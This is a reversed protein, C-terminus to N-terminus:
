DTSHERLCAEIEALLVEPEVPRFIFRAAGRALGEARSKEDHVTSTILIVPIARLRSDNKIASVLDYGIGDGMFLDCLILDPHLDTLAALGARYGGATVVRFGYHELLTRLLDRNAELNDVVLITGHIARPPAVADDAALSPSAPLVGRQDAGLFSDIQPIFKEPDIPKSIYGDFGSSLLKERDGVMALATVAILPIHKLDSEIKLQRAVEYGDVKPLHVDCVILDPPERRVAELGEGGDSATSVEHGFAKLLYTMLELNGPNDEIVLIRAM